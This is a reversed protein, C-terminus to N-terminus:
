GAAPAFRIVTSRLEFRTPAASGNRGGMTTIPMMLPMAPHASAQAAPIAGAGGFPM